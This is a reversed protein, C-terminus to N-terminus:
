SSGGLFDNAFEFSRTLGLLTANYRAAGGNAASGIEVRLDIGRRMMPLLKEFLYRRDDIRQRTLQDTVILESNSMRGILTGDIGWLIQDASELEREPLSLEVFTVGGARRHVELSPTVRGGSMEVTLVCSRVGTENSCDALWAGFYATLSDVDRDINAPGSAVEDSSLETDLRINSGVETVPESGIDSSIGAIVEASDGSSAEPTSASSVGPVLASPLPGPDAVPNSAVADALPEFGSQATANASISAVEDAVRQAVSTNSSRTAPGLAVAPSGVPLNCDSESPLRVGTVSSLNIVGDHDPGGDVSEDITGTVSAFLIQLDVSALSTYGLQLEGVANADGAILYRKDTGCLTFSNRNAGYVYFGEFLRTTSEEQSLLQRLESLREVSLRALCNKGIQEAVARPSSIELYWLCNERRFAEFAAQSRDFAARSEGSFERRIYAVIDGINADMIDLYNDLCAHIDDDLTSLAMCEALVDSQQAWVKQAPALLVLSLIALSAVWILSLTAARTAARKCALVLAGCAIARTRSGRM